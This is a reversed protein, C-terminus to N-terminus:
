YIITKSFWRQNQLGSNKHFYYFNGRKMPCGYKEYNWLKSLKDRITARADCEELFPRSVKNQENIFQQTEESDPQELWRYVDKVVVGHKTETFSEDKRAEPYVFQKMSNKEMIYTSLFRQSGWYNFQFSKVECNILLNRTNQSLSNPRSFEAAACPNVKYIPWFCNRKDAFPKLIQWKRNDFHPFKRCLRCFQQFNSIFLRCGNTVFSM